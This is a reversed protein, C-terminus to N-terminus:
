SQDMGFKKLMRNIYGEQSITIFEDDYTIQLGLMYTAIGLDTFEFEKKLENLIREDDATQAAYVARDNVFVSVYITSDAIVFVCPDFTSAQFGKSIFSCSITNFWEMASQKLGYLCKKM